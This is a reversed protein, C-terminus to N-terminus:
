PTQRWVLVTEFTLDNTAYEPNSVEDVLRSRRCVRYNGGRDDAAGDWDHLGGWAVGIGASSQAVHLSGSHETAAEVAPEQEKDDPGDLTTLQEAPTARGRHILSATLVVAGILVLGVSVM